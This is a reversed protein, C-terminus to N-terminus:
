EELSDVYCASLAPNIEAGASSANRATNWYRSIILSTSILTMRPRRMLNVIITLTIVASRHGTKMSVAADMSKYIVVARRCWCIGAMKM